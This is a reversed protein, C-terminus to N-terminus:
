KKRPKSSSHGKPSIIKTSLDGTKTDSKIKIALNRASNLSPKVPKAKSGSMRRDKYQQLYEMRAKETLDQVLKKKAEERERAEQQIQMDERQQRVAEAAEFAQVAMWHDRLAIRVQVEGALRCVEPDSDGQLDVISNALFQQMEEDTCLVSHLFVLNQAAQLRVNAIPDRMIRMLVQSFHSRFFRRSMLRLIEVCFHVFTVRNQYQQSNGLLTSIASCLDTRSDSLYNISILYALLKAIRFKLPLCVLPLLYLLAPQLTGILGSLPFHELSSNLEQLVKDVLRWPRKQLLIGTLKGLIQQLDLESGLIKVIEALNKLVTELLKEERFFDQFAPSLNVAEDGVLRLVEHYSKAMTAQVSLSSDSCLSFYCGKLHAEFTTYGLSSILAPFNFAASLRENELSSNAISQFFDMFQTKLDENQLYFAFKVAIEGCCVTLKERIGQDRSPFFDERLLPLVHNQVSNKPMLDVIDVILPIAQRKVEAEEDEVLKMVEQFVRARLDEGVARFVKKLEVCM